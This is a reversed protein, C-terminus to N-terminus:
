MTNEMLFPLFNQQSVVPHRCCINVFAFCSEAQPGLSFYWLPALNIKSCWNKTGASLFSFISFVIYYFLMYINMNFSDANVLSNTRYNCLNCSWLRKVNLDM